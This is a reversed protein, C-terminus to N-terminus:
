TRKARGLATTRQGPVDKTYRLDVALVRDPRLLYRHDLSRGRAMALFRATPLAIRLRITMQRYQLKVTCAHPNISVRVLGPRNYIPDAILNNALAVLKPLAEPNDYGYWRNPKHKPSKKPFYARAASVTTPLLEDSM